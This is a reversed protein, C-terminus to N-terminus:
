QLRSRIRNVFHDEASEKVEVIQTRGDLIPLIMAKILYQIQTECAFLFCLISPLAVAMSLQSKKVSFM